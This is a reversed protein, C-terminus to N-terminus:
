AGPKLKGALKRRADMIRVQEQLLRKYGDLLIVQEEYEEKLIEDMMSEFVETMTKITSDDLSRIDKSDVAAVVDASEKIRRGTKTASQKAEKFAAKILEKVSEGTDGVSKSVSLPVESAQQQEQISIPKSVTNISPTDREGYGSFEQSITTTTTTTATKEEIKSRVHEEKATGRKETHRSSLVLGVIIFTIAATISAAAAIVLQRKNASPM